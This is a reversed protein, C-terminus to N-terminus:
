KYLHALHKAYDPTLGTECWRFPNTAVGEKTYVDLGIMKMYEEVTRVKGMSYKNIATLVTKTKIMDRAREPYGLQYKVRDVVLDGLPTEAGDWFLRGVTEWYKPKHRRVYRHAVVAHTPSFIDYGHTWWRSSMIIEEGMFVWPVLPDYPAERLIGSHAVFYGAAVFPAFRPILKFEEDQGMGELRVIQNEIADTAFVPGCLRETPQKEHAKFDFGVAPPYHSIIPKKSPASKLMTISQSDWNEAFSMHSDIQLMWSEGGWLKSAYYRAMFPGVSETEEVKLVRVRGEDCHPQGLATACFLAYCDPDADTPEVKGGELVGSMCDHNCNQQVLGINLRGPHASNNYAGQLTEMCYEDRYSAMSVFISDDDRRTPMHGLYYEDFPLLTEVALDHFDKWIDYITGNGGGRKSWKERIGLLFGNFVELCDEITVTHDAGFKLEYPNKPPHKTLERTISGAKRLLSEASLKPLSIHHDKQYATISYYLSPVIFGVLIGKFLYSPQLSALASRTGAKERRNRKGNDNVM